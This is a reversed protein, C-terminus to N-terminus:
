TGMYWDQCTLARGHVFARIALLGHVWASFLGILCTALIAWQGDVGGYNAAYRPFIWFLLPLFSTCTVTIVQFMSLKYM